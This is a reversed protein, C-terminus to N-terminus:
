LPFKLWGVLMFLNVVIEFIPLQLDIARMSKSLSKIDEVSLPILQASEPENRKRTIGPDYM